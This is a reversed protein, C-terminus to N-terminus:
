RLPKTLTQGSKYKAICTVKRRGIDWGPQKPFTYTFTFQSADPRGNVAATLAPTCKTETQDTIASEGPYTSGTLEYTMIVEGNHTTTCTKKDITGSTTDLTVCDGKSLDVYQVESPMTPDTGGSATTRPATPRSTTPRTTPPASQTASPSSVASTTPGPTPSASKKKDDGGLVVVLTAIIGGVVVIAAIVVAILPGKGSGGQNPGPPMGGGYGGGGGYNGPYQPGGGGYPNPPPPYQQGGQPYQQGPYPQNSPYGQGPQQGYGPYGGQGPSPPMTM